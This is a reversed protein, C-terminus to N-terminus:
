GQCGNLMKIYTRDEAASQHLMFNLIANTTLIVSEIKSLECNLIIIEAMSIYPLSSSEVHVSYM